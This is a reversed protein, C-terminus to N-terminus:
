TNQGSLERFPQRYPEPTRCPRGSAIEVWVHETSGTALLTTGRHVDYGFRLGRNSLRDIWCAVKVTEGYRAGARYKASAGTVILHYGLAEVQAYHCGTEACLRTRAVEFWLIYNAHHVVGMQDTEGYRVEIEIEIRKAGGPEGRSARKRM